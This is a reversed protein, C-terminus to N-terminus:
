RLRGPLGYDEVVRVIAESMMRALDERWADAKQGDTRPSSRKVGVSMRSSM